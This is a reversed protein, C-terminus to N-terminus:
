ARQTFQLLASIFQLRISTVHEHDSLRGRSASQATLTFPSAFRQPRCYLRQAKHSVSDKLYTLAELDPLWGVEPYCAFSHYSGYRGWNISGGGCRM